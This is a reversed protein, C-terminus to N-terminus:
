LQKLANCLDEVLDDADEVGVSIRLLTESIESDSMARWEILSEVGGLSTAHHFLKTKSPMIKALEPSAVEISFVPGGNLPLQRKIFEEKQLSAHTISKLAPFEARHEDLYKVIKITNAVQKRIRLDYTRLSRLLLWSELSATITGLCIRDDHLTQAVKPDKTVLVGALLDSHGGFYKTASHMIMDVGFEFPFQLPPPAFTSDLLVVAGHSHAIKVYKEIDIATGYPNIPSELHILDGPQILESASELPYSQVGSNRKLISLIQKCGHYSQGIFVNKPNYYIMAAHFASLGSSYAVAHGDLLKSFVEEIRVVVPQNERSYVIDDYFTGAEAVEKFSKLQAPDSTYAYTTSLHIPSAIDSTHAHHDDAHIALTAIRYNEAM